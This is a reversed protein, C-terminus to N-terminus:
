GRALAAYAVAAPQPGEVPRPALRHLPDSVEDAPLASMARVRALYEDALDGLRVTFIDLKRDEVLELLLDLPGEFGAVTVEPPRPGVPM